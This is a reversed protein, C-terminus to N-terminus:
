FHSKISDRFLSGFLKHDASEHRLRGAIICPSIELKESLLRVDVADSFVSSQWIVEPILADKALADAQQEVQDGGLADLDDLYWCVNGDLHLAIHSLEHM